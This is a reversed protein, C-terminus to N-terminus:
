GARRLWKRGHDLRRQLQDVTAESITRIGALRNLEANVSPHSWGTSRVLEKAIDANLDRLRIRQERVSLDPAGGAAGDGPDAVAVIGGGPLPPPLLVLEVGEPETGGVAGDEMEGFVGPGAHEARHGSSEEADLAVSGIVSFLSMQEDDGLPVDDVDASPGAERDARKRLNHRRSESLEASYRRLRPDDPLFVYARQDRVGRVHRVVRGVAQRFFLETTTTTAFVAIRLRPLDVGESVMRVAVIWPETGDGFAAIRASADPDDSTAVVAPVGRGRLLEAIGVAHAQDMAIVLGGATPDARRLTVLREHAQELVTPLWEGELSLATRLRQNARERSLDDDFTAAVVEGDPAVWEMFGNIRPFYVPRVVGRDALAEGYGYEYDARAEDLHYDVFPIASTDSRFPTGSLALRRAAPEFAELVASGWARDDGAHHLEDLVVFAGRSLRALAASSTAVQQYTTVIGHMDSPLAGDRASWEPELHLGFRLAAAAWQHKLHQTPAVVVLRRGPHEALDQTAATLAFTTKGAGPTAVALFDPRRCNALADLAESQWPRLRIRTPRGVAVTM